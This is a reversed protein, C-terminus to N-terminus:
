KLMKNAGRENKALMLDHTKVGREPHQEKNKAYPKKKRKKKGIGLLVRGSHEIQSANRQCDM